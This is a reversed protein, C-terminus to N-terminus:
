VSGETIGEGLASLRCFGDDENGADQMRLAGPCPAALRLGEAVRGSPFRILSRQISPGALSQAAGLPAEAFM